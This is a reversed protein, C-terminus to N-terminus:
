NLVQVEDSGGGAQVDIASFTSRAFKFDFTGDDGVDVALHSPDAPDLELLLKDSAGNGTVELTGNSVQAHYAALAPSAAVAFTAAVSAGAVIVGVRSYMRGRSLDIRM